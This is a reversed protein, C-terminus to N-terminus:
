SPSSSSTTKGTQMSFRRRFFFLAMATTLVIGVETKPEPIAAPGTILGSSAIDNLADFETFAVNDPPLFTAFRFGSVTEGPFVDSFSDLSALFLSDGGESNSGGNSAVWFIETTAGLGIDFKETPVVVDGPDTAFIDDFSFDADGETFEFDLSISTIPTTGTTNDIIYSYIFPDGVLPTLVSNSADFIFDASASPALLAALTISLFSGLNQLSRICFTKM